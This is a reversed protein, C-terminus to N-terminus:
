NTLATLLIGAAIAIPVRASNKIILDEEAKQKRNEARRRTKAERRHFEYTL